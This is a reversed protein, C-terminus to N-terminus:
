DNRAALATDLIRHFTGPPNKLAKTVRTCPLCGVATRVTTCNCLDGDLEVQYIWHKLDITSFIRKSSLSDLTARIKQLLYTDTITLDDLRRFDSIIRTVGDKRPVSVDNAARPSVYPEMVEM